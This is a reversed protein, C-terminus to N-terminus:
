MSVLLCDELLLARFRAKRWNTLKKCVVAHDFLPSLPQIYIHVIALDSIVVLVRVWLKSPVLGPLCFMLQASISGSCDFVAPKGTAKGQKWSLVLYHFGLWCTLGYTICSKVALMLSLFRKRLIYSRFDPYCSTSSKTYKILYIALVNSKIWKLNSNTSGSNAAMALRGTYM